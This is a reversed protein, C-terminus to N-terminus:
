GVSQLAQRILTQSDLNKDPLAHILKQAQAPKYGLAILASLADEQPASMGEQRLFSASLEISQSSEGNWAELTHKIEILLREATKKGVGPIKTLRVLDQERICTIFEQVSMASLIALALKPGVGNVKIVTQFLMKEEHTSFGYLLHADERVIMQILLTVSKQQQHSLAYFTSMPALIEYGVGHVDLVLMPPKQEVIEGTLRNIM